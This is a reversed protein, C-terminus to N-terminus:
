RPISRQRTDRATSWDTKRTSRGESNTRWRAPERRRRGCKERVTGWRTYMALERRRPRRTQRGASSRNARARWWNPKRSRRGFTQGSNGSLFRGDLKVLDGVINGMLIGFLRGVELGGFDRLKISRSDLTESSFRSKNSAKFDAAAVHVSAPWVIREQFSSITM